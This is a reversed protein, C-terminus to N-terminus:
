PTLESPYLFPLLFPFAPPFLPYIMLLSRRFAVAQCRSKMEYDMMIHPAELMHLLIVFKARGETGYLVSVKHFHWGFYFNGGKLQEILNTICFFSTFLVFWGWDFHLQVDRLCPLDDFCFYVSSCQRHKNQISWSLLDFCICFIQPLFYITFTYTM